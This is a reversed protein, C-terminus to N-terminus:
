FLIFGEPIKMDIIFRDQFDKLYLDLKIKFMRM